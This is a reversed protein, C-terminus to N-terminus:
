RALSLSDASRLVYDFVGDGNGGCPMANRSGLLDNGSAGRPSGDSKVAVSLTRASGLPRRSLDEEGVCLRNMLMTEVGHAVFSGDAASRASAVAYEEGDAAALLVRYARSAPMGTAFVYWDLAGDVLVYRFTGKLMGRARADAVPELSITRYRTLDPVVLRTEESRGNDGNGCAGIALLLSVALPVCRVAIM